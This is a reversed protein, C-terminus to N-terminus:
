LLFVFLFTLFLLFPIVLKPLALFLLEQIQIRMQELRLALSCSAKRRSRGTWHRWDDDEWISRFLALRLIEAFLFNLRELRRVVLFERARNTFFEGSHADVNVPLNLRVLVQRWRLQAICLELGASQSFFLAKQSLTLHDVPDFRL